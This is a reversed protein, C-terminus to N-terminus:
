NLDDHDSGRTAPPGIEGPWTNWLTECLSFWAARSMDGKRALNIVFMLLGAGVANPDVGSKILERTLADAYHFVTFADRPTSRDQDGSNPKNM